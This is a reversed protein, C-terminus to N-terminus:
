VPYTNWLSNPNEDEPRLTWGVTAPYYNPTTNLHLRIDAPLKLTQITQEHTPWQLTGDFTGAIDCNPTIADVAALALFKLTQM